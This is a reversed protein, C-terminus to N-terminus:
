DIEGLLYGIPVNFVTSVRILSDLTPNNVASEWQRLSSETVGCLAAVTRKDLGLDKRLKKLTRQFIKRRRIVESDLQQITMIVELFITPFSAAM